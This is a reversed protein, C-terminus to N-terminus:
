RTPQKLQIMQQEIHTAVREARTKLVAIEVKTEVETTQVKGSLMRLKLNM